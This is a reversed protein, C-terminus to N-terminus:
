FSWDDFWFNIFTLAKLYKFDKIICAESLYSLPVKVCVIKLAIKGELHKGQGRCICKLAIDNYTENKSSFSLIIPM